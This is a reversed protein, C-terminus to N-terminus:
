VATESVSSPAAALATRAHVLERSVGPPHQAPCVYGGGLHLMSVHAFVMRRRSLPEPISPRWGRSGERPLRWWGSIAASFFSFMGDM